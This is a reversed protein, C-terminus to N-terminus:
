GAELDHLIPRLRALAREDEVAIDGTSDFREDHDVLARLKKAVARRVPAPAVTLREALRLGLDRAWEDTVARAVLKTVRAPTGPLPLGLDLLAIAAAVGTKVVPGSYNTRDTVVLDALLAEFDTCAEPPLLRRARWDLALGIADEIPETGADILSRLVPWGTAAAASDAEALIRLATLQDGRQYVSTAPETGVLSRCWDLFRTDTRDAWHGLVASETYRLDADLVRHFDNRDMTLRALALLVAADGSGGAARLRDISATDGWTALADAVAKPAVGLLERVQPLAGAVAEAPWSALLSVLHGTGDRSPDAPPDRRLAQLIAAVLMTASSAHERILAHGLASRGSVSTAVMLGRAAPNTLLARAMPRSWRGDGARLLAFAADARADTDFASSGITATGGGTVQEALAVLADGVEPTPPCQRLAAIMTEPETGPLAAVALM